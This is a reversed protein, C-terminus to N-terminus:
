NAMKMLRSVYSYHVWVLLSSAFNALMEEVASYLKYTGVFGGDFISKGELRNNYIYILGGMVGLLIPSFVVV